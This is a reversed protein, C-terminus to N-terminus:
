TNPVLDQLEDISDVLQIDDWFEEETILYPQILETVQKEVLKINTIFDDTLGSGTGGQMLLMRAAATTTDIYVNRLPLSTVGLGTGSDAIFNDITLVYKRIAFTLGSADGSGLAIFDHTYYTGEETKMKVVINGTESEFSTDGYISKDFSVVSTSHGHTLLMYELCMSAEENRDLMIKGADIYYYESLLKKGKTLSDKKNSVM